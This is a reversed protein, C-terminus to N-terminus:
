YLPAGNVTPCTLKLHINKHYNNPIQKGLLVYLYEATEKTIERGAESAEIENQMAVRMDFFYPCQMVIHGTNEELGLDCLNCMRTAHSSTKKYKFDDSKLRSVRSVIKAM